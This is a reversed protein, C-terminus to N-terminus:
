VRPQRYGTSHPMPRRPAPLHTHTEWILGGAGALWVLGFWSRQRQLLPVFTVAEAQGSVMADFGIPNFMDLIPTHNGANTYVSHWPTGTYQDGAHLVLVDQGAAAAEARAAAAYGGIRALGGYASAYTAPTALNFNSDAPEIRAHVDNVHLIRLRAEPSAPPPPSSPPTAATLTAAPITFDDVLATIDGAANTQV